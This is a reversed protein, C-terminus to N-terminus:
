VGFGLKLPALWMGMRMIRVTGIIPSEPPLWLAIAEPEGATADIQGYKLAYRTMLNMAWPLDRSRQQEHPVLWVVVPDDEFARALVNAAANVAPPALSVVDSETTM